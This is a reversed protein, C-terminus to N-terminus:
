HRAAARFARDDTVAWDAHLSLMQAGGGPEQQSIWNAAWALAPATSASRPEAFVQARPVQPVTPAVQDALFPGTVRPSGDAPRRGPGGSGRARTRGRRRDTRDGSVRPDGGARAARAAARSRVWRPPPSGLANCRAPGGARRVGRACRRAHPRSERCVWAARS